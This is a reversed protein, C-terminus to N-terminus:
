DHQGPRYRTGLTTPRLQMKASGAQRRNRMELFKKDQGRSSIWVSPLQEAAM